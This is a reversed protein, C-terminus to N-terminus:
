ISRALRSIAEPMDKEQTNSFNLRLSACDSQQGPPYFVSGPVVALKQQLARKAIVDTHRGPLNLWIFMGGQVEDFQGHAKLQRNLEASLTQYRSRYSKRLQEIHEAYDPHNLLGTLIAQQPLGTHLDTSQKIREALQIFEAPGGMAGIRIGPFGTKSFSRLSITQEPYLSSLTMRSPGNFRLERYPMDEILAIAYKRCLLVVQQRCDASWTKGTPNHFDPVAYFLRIKGTKFFDELRSLNPGESSSDLSYLKAGALQFAQLAGLYGPAELVVGDGPELLTRAVIDIGQQSGNCILWSQQPQTYLSELKELLPEYGRSNGYQFLAPTEHLTQCVSKILKVPLLSTAPLGGAMSIVGPQTAAALIERIYSPSLSSAQKSFRM